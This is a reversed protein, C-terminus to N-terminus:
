ESPTSAPARRYLVATGIIAALTSGALVGLKAVAAESASFARDAM